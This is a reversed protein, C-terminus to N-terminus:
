QMLNTTVVFDQNVSNHSLMIKPLMVQITAIVPLHHKQTYKHRFFTNSKQISIYYSILFRMWGSLSQLVSSYVSLFTSQCRNTNVTLRNPNVIISALLHSEEMVRVSQRQFSCSYLPPCFSIGYPLFLLSKCFLIGTSSGSQGHAHHATM